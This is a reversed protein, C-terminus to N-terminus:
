ISVTVVSKSVFHKDSYSEVRTRQKRSFLALDPGEKRSLAKQV